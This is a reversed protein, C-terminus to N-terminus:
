LAGYYNIRGFELGYNILGNGLLSACFTDKQIETNTFVFGVGYDCAFKWYRKWWNVDWKKEISFFKLGVMANFKTSNFDIQIECEIRPAHLKM